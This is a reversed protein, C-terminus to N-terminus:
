VIYLGLILKQLYPVIFAMKLPIYNQGHKSHFRAVCALKRLPKEMAKGSKSHFYLSETM